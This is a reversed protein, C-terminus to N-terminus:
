DSHVALARSLHAVRGDREGRTCLGAQAQYCRRRVWLALDLAPGTCLGLCWGILLLGLHIHWGTPLQSGFSAALEGECRCHCVTDREQKIWVRLTLWLDAIALGVYSLPAGLM